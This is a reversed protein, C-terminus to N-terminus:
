LDTGAARNMTRVVRRALTTPKLHREVRLLYSVPSDALQADRAEATTQRLATAALAISGATVPANGIWGGAAAALAPLEFKYSLASNFTTMKLSGMAKRLEELPVAISQDFKLRLHHELAARDEIGTVQGRLDEAADDVAEAFALFEARYDQRLRIIKAVPVRRLGDPLVCRVAMLGFRAAEDTVVPRPPESLLAAAIRDSDWGDSASYAAVQDTIPAYRTQRALEDTLACKYIWALVPDMALWTVMSSRAIRSRMAPVALGADRLADTLPPAVEHPYLGALPRQNRPLTRVDGPATPETNVIREGMGLEAIHRHDFPRTGTDALFRQRLAPGHDEVAKLFDPAVAVAAGAPDVDTVFDLEDRLAKVVDPDAVPFGTPVVRALAPWYLAAAKLWQEDRFHVYPYYLGIRQM